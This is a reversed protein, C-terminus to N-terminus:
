PKCKNKGESEVCQVCLQTGSPLNDLQKIVEQLRMIEAELEDKQALLDYYREAKLIEKEIEDLEEATIPITGLVEDLEKM